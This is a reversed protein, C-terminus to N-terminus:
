NYFLDTASKGPKDLAKAKSNGKKVIPAKKVKKTIAAKKGQLADYRAAKLLADIHKSQYVTAFEEATWGNNGLYTDLAAMDSKYVDTAKGDADVWTPNNKILQQQEAAIDADSTPKTTTLSEKAKSLLKERKAKQESLRIYEDPDYKDSEVDRLEDLNVEDESGIVAQLEAALSAISETQTALEVRDAEFATRQDALEQTKRTYDAQMLGHSKWEKVQDLSVEEGDLDIYLLEQDEDSSEDENGEVVESEEADVEAPTEDETETIVEDTTSEADPETKEQTTGYFIDTPELTPTDM